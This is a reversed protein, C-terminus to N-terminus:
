NSSPGSRLFAHRRRCVRPKSITRPSILLRPFTHMNAIFTDIKCLCLHQTDFPALFRGLRPPPPHELNLLCPYFALNGPSLNRPFHKRGSLKWCSRILIESHIVSSPDGLQSM